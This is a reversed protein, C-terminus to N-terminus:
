EAPSLGGQCHQGRNHHLLQSADIGLQHRLRTVDVLHRFGLLAPEELRDVPTEAPQLLDEGRSAAGDRALLRELEVIGEAKRDVKGLDDGALATYLYINRSELPLQLLLPFARSIRAHRGALHFHLGQSVSGGDVHRLWAFPAGDFASSLLKDPVRAGLRGGVDQRESLLPWPSLPPQEASLNCYYR